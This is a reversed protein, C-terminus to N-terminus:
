KGLRLVPPELFGYNNMVAKNEFCGTQPAVESNPNYLSLGSAPDIYYTINYENPDTVQIIPAFVLLSLLVGFVVQAAIKIIRKLSYDM